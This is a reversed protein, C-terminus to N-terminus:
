SSKHYRQIIDELEESDMDNLYLNLLEEILERQSIRKWWAVARIAEVYKSGLRASFPLTNGTNNTTCTNSTTSQDGSDEGVDSLLEDFNFDSDAM